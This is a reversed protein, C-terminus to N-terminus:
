PCRRPPACAHYSHALTTFIAWPDGTVWWSVAVCILAVVTLAFAAVGLVTRM